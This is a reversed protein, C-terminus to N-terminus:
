KSIEGYGTVEGRKIGKQSLLHKDEAFINYGEECKFYIWQEPNPLTKVDEIKKFVTPNNDFIESQFSLLKDTKSSVQLIGESYGEGEYVINIIKDGVKLYEEPSTISLENHIEKSPITTVQYSEIPSITYFRILSSQKTSWPHYLGNSVSCPKIDKKDRLSTYGKITTKGVKSSNINIVPGPYEGSWFSYAVQHHVKGNRIVDIKYPMSEDAYLAINSLM